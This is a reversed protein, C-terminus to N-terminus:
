TRKIRAVWDIRPAPVEFRSVHVNAAAVVTVITMGDARYEFLIYLM